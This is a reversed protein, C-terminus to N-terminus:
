FGIVRWYWEIMKDGWLFAFLTAASLFTGFPIESKMTKKKLLILILGMFAGSVFALFLALLINPWSLVLGMFLVLKIDGGGMWKGRSILVLAIFFITPLVGFGLDWIKDQAFDLSELLNWNGFNWIELFRYLFAVGIAPYVVRDPIIYYKLDSLFIIILFTVLLLYYAILLLHYPDFISFQGGTPSGGLPAFNFILLFLSATTIEVIPYQWSIKKHCYRCRAKLLFFSLVPFLDRWKLIKKCYPCHSRSWLISEGTKLRFVFSNIFSGVSLGIIFIFFISM